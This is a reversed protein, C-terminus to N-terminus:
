FGNILQKLDLAFHKASVNHNSSRQHESSIQTDEITVTANNEEDHCDDNQTEPIFITDDAVSDTRVIRYAVVIDNFVVFKIVNAVVAEEVLNKVNESEYDFDKM